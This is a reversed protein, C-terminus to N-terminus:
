FVTIAVSTKLMRPTTFMTCSVVGGTGIVLCSSVVAKVFRVKLFPFWLVLGPGIRM